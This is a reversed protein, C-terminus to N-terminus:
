ALWEKNKRLAGVLFKMVVHIVPSIHIASSKGKSGQAIM